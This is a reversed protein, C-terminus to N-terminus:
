ERDPGLFLNKGANGSLLAARQNSLSQLDLVLTNMLPDNVNASSPPALSAMDKNKNFYDLIYNYYHEQVQLTSLDSEIKKMEQLAQQGQYSLDTVQNVSRYDKLKSESKLLSDSM